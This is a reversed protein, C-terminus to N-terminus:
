LPAYKSCANWIKIQMLFDTRYESPSNYFIEITKVNLNALQKVADETVEPYFCATSAGFKIMIVYVKGFHTEICNNCCLARLFTGKFCCVGLVFPVAFLRGM